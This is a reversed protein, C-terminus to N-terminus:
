PFDIGNAWEALRIVKTYPTDAPKGSPHLKGDFPIINYKEGRCVRLLNGIINYLDDMETVHCYLFLLLWVKLREDLPAQIFSLIQKILANSEVLPDWGADEIGRIRLLSCGFEVEDTAQAKVFLPKLVVLPDGCMYGEKTNNM